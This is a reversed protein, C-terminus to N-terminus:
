REFNVILEFNVNIEVLLNKENSKDNIEQQFGAKLNFDREILNETSKGKCVLLNDRKIIKIEGKNNNILNFMRKLGALDLNIKIKSKFELFLLDPEVTFLSTAYVVNNFSYRFEIMNNDNMINNEKKLQIIELEKM